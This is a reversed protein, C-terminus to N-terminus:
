GELRTGVLLEEAAGGARAVAAIAAVQAGAARLALLCSYATAGTTVVDDVVIVTRGEVRRPQRVVFDAKVNELREARGRGVQAGSWRQRALVRPVSQWPGLRALAGSLLAAQNYGREALRRRHVPVPALLADTDSLGGMAEALLWALPRALDPRGEYKLRRLADQIPPRYIVAAVVPVGALSCAGPRVITQRCSPCLPAGLATRAECGVCGTPAFLEFLAECRLAAAQL